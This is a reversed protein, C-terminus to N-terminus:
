RSSKAKFSVPIGSQATGAPTASLQYIFPMPPLGSPIYPYAGAYMGMDVGNLGAGIAPSGQALQYKGDTSTSTIYVDYDLNVNLLNGNGAPLQTGRCMNNSASNNKGNIVPSASTIMFINNFIMECGTTISGFIINNSIIVGNSLLQNGDETINNVRNGSIRINKVQDYTWSINGGIYNQTIEYNSGNSISISNQIYCRRINVNSITTSANISLSYNQMGIILVDSRQITIYNIAAVGGNIPVPANQDLFYGPGIIVVPKTITIDNYVTTSGMVYVTDYNNAYKLATDVRAFNAWTAGVNNDVTWIKSYGTVTLCFIFAFFLYRGM